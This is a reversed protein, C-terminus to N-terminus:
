ETFGQWDCHPDEPRARFAPAGLQECQVWGTLSLNRRVKCGCKPCKNARLAAAAEARAAAIRENQVKTM